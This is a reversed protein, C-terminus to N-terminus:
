DPAKLFVICKGFMTNKLPEACFSRHRLHYAQFYVPVAIGNNPGHCINSDCVISFQSDRTLLAIAKM